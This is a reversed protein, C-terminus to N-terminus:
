LPQFLPYCTNLGDFNISAASFPPATSFLTSPYALDHFDRQYLPQEQCLSLLFVIIGRIVSLTKVTFYSYLHVYFHYVSCAHMSFSSSYSYM